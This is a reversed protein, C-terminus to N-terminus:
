AAIGTIEFKFEPVRAHAMITPVQRVALIEYLPIFPNLIKFDAEHLPLKDYLSTVTHSKVLKVM